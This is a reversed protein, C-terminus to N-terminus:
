KLLILQHKHAIHKPRTQANVHRVLTPYSVNYADAAAKVTKYVGLKYDKCAQELLEETAQDITKSRPNEKPAMLQWASNPSHQSHREHLEFKEEFTVGRKGNLLIKWKSPM